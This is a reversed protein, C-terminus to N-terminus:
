FRVNSDSTQQWIRVDLTSGRAILTVVMKKITIAGRKKTAHNHVLLQKYNYPLSARDYHSHGSSATGERERHAFKLSVFNLTFIRYQPSSRNHCLLLTSPRLGSPELNTDPHCHLKIGVKANEHFERVLDHIRGGILWDSGDNLQQKKILPYFVMSPSYCAYQKLITSPFNMNYKKQKLTHMSSM